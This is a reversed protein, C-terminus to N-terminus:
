LPYLKQYTEQLESFLTDMDVIREPLMRPKPHAYRSARIGLTEASLPYVEIRCSYDAQPSTGPSELYHTSSGNSHKLYYRAAFFDLTKGVIQSIDAESERYRQFGM